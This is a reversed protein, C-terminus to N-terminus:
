QWPGGIRLSNDKTIDITNFNYPPLSGQVVIMIDPYIRQLRDIEVEFNKKMQKHVLYEAELLIQGTLLLNKHNEMAIGALATHIQTALVKTKVDLIKEKQPDESRPKSNDKPAPRLLNMLKQIKVPHHRVIKVCYEVGDQVLELNHLLENYYKQLIGRGVSEGVISNFRFPLLAHEKMFDHIIKEHRRQNGGTTPFITQNTSSVAAVLDECKIFFVRQDDVGEIDSKKGRFKKM